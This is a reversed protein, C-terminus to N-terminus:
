RDHACSDQTTSVSTRSSRTPCVEPKGTTGGPASGPIRTQIPYASFADLHSALRLILVGGFPRGLRPRQYPAPTFVTVDFGLVVLQGFVKAQASIILHLPLQHIRHRFALRTHLYDGMSTTSTFSTISTISTMSSLNILHNNCRPGM